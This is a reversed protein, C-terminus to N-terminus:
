SSRVKRWAARALTVAGLVVFAVVLFAVAETPSPLQHRGILSALTMGVAAFVLSLAARKM